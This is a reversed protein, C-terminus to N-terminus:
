KKKLSNIIKEDFNRLSDEVFLNKIDLPGDYINKKNMQYNKIKKDFYSPKNDEQPAIDVSKNLKKHGLDREMEVSKNMEKIKEKKNRNKNLILYNKFLNGKSIKEENNITKLLINNRNLKIQQEKKISRKSLLSELNSSPQKDNINFHVSSYNLKKINNRIEFKRNTLSKKNVNNNYEKLNTKINSRLSNMNIRIKNPLFNKKTIKLNEDVVNPVNISEKEKVKDKDNIKEKEKEKENIQVKNKIKNKDKSIDKLNEKKTTSPNKIKVQKREINYKTFLNEEEFDNNKKIKKSYKNKKGDSKIL